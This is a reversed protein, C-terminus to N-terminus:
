RSPTGNVAAPRRLRTSSTSLTSRRSNYCFLGDKETCIEDDRAHFEDNNAYIVLLRDGEVTRVLQEAM